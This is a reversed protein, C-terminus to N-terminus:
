STTTRTLRQKIEEVSLGQDLLNIVEERGKELGVELGEERGEKLGAERGAELGEEYGDERAEERWVKKADNLNWKEYLMSVIRRGHIRLFEKLIGNEHCDQITKRLAKKLNKMKRVNAQEIGIFASYESLAKCRSMIEKNRGSNINIVKVELEMLPYAKEPLGLDQPKEYLDSLHLIKQDPFKDTGDYIVFFEPWPISVQRSTYISKDKVMTKLVDSVYLLLRLAMNPNITSQHEILVVMKGAIEFSIDNYIDLYLVNKLTNISVPVNPALTVGELACYLDRLLDPNSFLTTFVSDKFRRNIKM